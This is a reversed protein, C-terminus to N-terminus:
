TRAHTWDRGSGLKKGIVGKREKRGKKKEEKASRKKKRGKVGAKRGTKKRRNLGPMPGIRGSGM